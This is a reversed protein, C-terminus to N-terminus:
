KRRLARGPMADTHKGRDLVVQGNVIVFEIGENYAFPATYTSEGIVKEPDVGSTPSAGRCAVVRSQFAPKAANLSTMKRVADELKLVGSRSTSRCVRSRGSTERIRIARRAGGRDRLGVRRGISCWPQQMALNMDKRPHAYVTPM